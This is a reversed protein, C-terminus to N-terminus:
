LDFGRDILSKFYPLTDVPVYQYHKEEKDVFMLYIYRDNQIYKKNIQVTAKFRLTSVGRMETVKASPIPLYEFVSQVRNIQLNDLITFKFTNLDFKEKARDPVQIEVGFVVYESGPSSVMDYVTIRKKPIRPYGYSETIITDQPTLIPNKKQITLSVNDKEKLYIVRPFPILEKRPCPQAIINIFYTKDDEKRNIRVATELYQGEPIPQKLHIYTGRKNDLVTAGLMSLDDVIASQITTKISEDFTLTIGANFCMQVNFADKYSIPQHLILSSDRELTFSNKVSDENQVTSKKRFVPSPSYINKSDNENQSAILDPREKLSKLRRKLLLSEEKTLKISVEEKKTIDPKAESTIKKEMETVKAKEESLQKDLKESESQNKDSSVESSTKKADMIAQEIATQALTMQSFLFLILFSRIM